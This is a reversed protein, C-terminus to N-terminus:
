ISCELGCKNVCLRIIDEAAVKGDLAFGEANCLTVSLVNDEYEFTLKAGSPLRPNKDGEVRYDKAMELLEEASEIIITTKM